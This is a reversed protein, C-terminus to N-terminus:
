NRGRKELRLMQAVQAAEAQQNAQAQAAMMRQEYWLADGMNRLMEHAAWFQSARVNSSSVQLGGDATFVIQLQGLVNPDAGNEDRPEDSM